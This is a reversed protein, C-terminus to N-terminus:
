KTGPLNKGLKMITKLDSHGYVRAMELSSWGLQQRIYDWGFGRAALQSARTHRLLHAVGEKKDRLGLTRLIREAYRQLSRKACDFLPAKQSAEQIHKNLDSVMGKSHFHVTRVPRGERKLTAVRVAPLKEELRLASVRILLAESVRVGTFGIFRLAIGYPEKIKRTERIFEEFEADTLLKRSDIATDMYASAAKAYQSRCCRKKCSVKKNGKKGPKCKHSKPTCTKARRNLNYRAMYKKGCVHCRSKVCYEETAPNTKLTSERENKAM